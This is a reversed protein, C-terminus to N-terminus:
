AFVRDLTERIATQIEPPLDPIITRLEFWILNALTIPISTNEIQTQILSTVEVSHDAKLFGTMAIPLKTHEQLLDSIDDTVTITASEANLKM